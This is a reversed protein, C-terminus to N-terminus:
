KGSTDSETHIQLSLRLRETNCIQTRVAFGESPASIWVDIVNDAESRHATQDNEENKQHKKVNRWAASGLFVAALGGAAASAARATLALSSGLGAALDVSAAASFLGADVTEWAASSAAPTGLFSSFLFEM